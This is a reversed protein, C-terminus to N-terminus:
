SKDRVAMAKRYCNKWHISALGDAMMGHAIAGQYAPIWIYKKAEQMTIDEPFVKYVIGFKWFTFLKFQFLSYSPSGVDNPNYARPNNNSECAMIRNALEIDFEQANANGIFFLLFSLCFWLNSKRM